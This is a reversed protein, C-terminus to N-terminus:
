SLYLDLKREKAIPCVSSKFREIAVLRSPPFSFEFWNYGVCFISRTSPNILYMCLIAHVNCAKEQDPQSSKLMEFICIM